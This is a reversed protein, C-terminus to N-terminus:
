HKTPLKVKQAELKQRILKLAITRLVDPVNKNVSLAKQDRDNLHNVLHMTVDIPARPNNVLARVVSYNKMFKRNTTILRLAEETVSKMSAISEIEQDSLKPSQLVARTVIKNSDRVLVLREEQSGTLAVKIKEATSMRAIRQLLTERAADKPETEDDAAEAILSSPAASFGEPRIALSQVWERLDEPLQPNQLLGQQVDKSGPALYGVAFDLIPLPTSPAELIQKLEQSNWAKLTEFATNRITSDDDGCLLVLIEIKEGLSV